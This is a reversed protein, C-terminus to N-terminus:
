FNKKRTFGTSVNQMLMSRRVATLNVNGTICQLLDNHWKLAVSLMEADPISILEFTPSLHEFNIIKFTNSNM